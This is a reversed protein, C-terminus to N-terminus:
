IGDESFNEPKELLAKPVPDSLPIRDWQKGDWVYRSVHIGGCWDDIGFENVPVIADAVPCFTGYM